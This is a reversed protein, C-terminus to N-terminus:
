DLQFWTLAGHRSNWDRNQQDITDGEVLGNPNELWRRYTAKKAQDFVGRNRTNELMLRFEIDLSSPFPPIGEEAALPPPSSPIYVRGM